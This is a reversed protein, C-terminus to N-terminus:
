DIKWAYQIKTWSKEAIGDTSAPKFQCLSLGLQAAKDLARFGSSKELRADLVRGDTGILMSLTVIGEEGNRLSAAPYTPKECGSANAVAAIHIPQRTPLTVEGGGDEYGGKDTEHAGGDTKNDKKPLTITQKPDSEVLPLPIDPLKPLATNKVEPDKEKEIPPEPKPEVTIVPPPSIAKKINEQNLLAAFLLAHLLTVVAIRPLNNIQSEKQTSFNM